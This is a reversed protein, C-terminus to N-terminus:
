WWWECWECAHGGAVGVQPLSLNPVSGVVRKSFSTEVLRRRLRYYLERRAHRWPIVRSICGKALMRGPTDHLDAFSHAIQLYLPMLATERAKISRGVDDPPAQLCCWVASAVRLLM